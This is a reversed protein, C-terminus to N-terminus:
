PEEDFGSRGFSEKPMLVIKDSSSGEVTVVEPRRAGEALTEEAM